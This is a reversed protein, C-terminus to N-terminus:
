LSGFEPIFLGLSFLSCLSQVFGSQPTSFCETIILSEIIILAFAILSRPQFVDLIPSFSKQFSIHIKTIVTQNDLGSTYAIIAQVFDPLFLIM